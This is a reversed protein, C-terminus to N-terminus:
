GVASQQARRMAPKYSGQQCSLPKGIGRGLGRDQGALGLSLGFQSVLLMVCKALLVWRGILWLLILDVCSGCAAAAAPMYQRTHSACCSATPSHCQAATQCAATPLGEPPAQPHTPLSMHATLSCHPACGTIAEIPLLCSRAMSIAGPWGYRLCQLLSNLMVNLSCRVNECVTVFTCCVTKKDYM